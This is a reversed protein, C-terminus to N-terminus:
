SRKLKITLKKKAEDDDVDHAKTGDDKRRGRKMSKKSAEKHVSGAAEEDARWGCPGLVNM